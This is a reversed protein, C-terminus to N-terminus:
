SPDGHIRDLIELNALLTPDDAFGAPAVALFARLQALYPDEAAYDVPMAAQRPLRHFLEGGGRAGLTGLAELEGADGTVVLRSVARHEISVSVHALVEGLRLSVEAARDIGAPPVRLAAVDDVAGAGSLMLALDLCHTGLAALSWFRADV